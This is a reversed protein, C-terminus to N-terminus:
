KPVYAMLSALTPNEGAFKYSFLKLIIIFDLLEERFSEPGNFVETFERFLNKSYNHMIEYDAKEKLWTIIKKFEARDLWLGHCINCVDVVIKSDGYYVEYLPMRCVPCIRIGYSVKFENAQKWLDIDLWSLNKDRENKIAELEGQNFWTGLCNNCYDIETNNILTKRLEESKCIPCIM